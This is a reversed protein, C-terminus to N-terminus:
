QYKLMPEMSGSFQIQRRQQQAQQLIHDSQEKFVLFFSFDIKETIQNMWQPSLRTSSRSSGTGAVSGATSRKISNTAKTELKKAPNATKKLSNIVRGTLLCLSPVLAAVSRNSNPQTFARWGCDHFAALLLWMRLKQLALFVIAFHWFIM